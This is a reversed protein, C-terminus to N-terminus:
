LPTLLAEIEIMGPRNNPGHGRGFLIDSPKLSDVWQHRLHRFDLEKQESFLKSECTPPCDVVHATQEQSALSMIVHCTLISSGILPIIRTAPASLNSSVANPSRRLIAFTGM